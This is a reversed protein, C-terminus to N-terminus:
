RRRKAWRRSPPTPMPAPSAEDSADETTTSPEDHPGDEAGLQLLVKTRARARRRRRHRRLGVVLLILVVMAGLPLVVVMPLLVFRTSAVAIKTGQSGVAVTAEARYYGFRLGHEWTVEYRRQTGPLLTPGSGPVLGGTLPLETVKRGFVDRVVISGAPDLHVNGDNRITLSMPTPGAEGQFPAVAVKGVPSAHEKIAGTVTLLVQVGIRANIVTSSGPNAQDPVFSSFFITAYHGGPEADRPVAIRVDITRAQQGLLLFDPASITFWPSADFAKRFAPDVPENAAFEAASAHFAAPQDTGNGVTIQSTFTVGPAVTDRIIGPAVSLKSGDSPTQAGAPSPTTAGLVVVV